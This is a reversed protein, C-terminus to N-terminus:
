ECRLAVTPDVRAAARAPVLAAVLGVLALIVAVVAFSVPDHPGVSFLLSKLIRSVALAAALGLAGGLVLLRAGDCGVLRLIDTRTAGLAMRVGIEQTRQTVMFATVGYLGIAAMLLGALAFFGLLAAEFRPQDALRSVSENMTELDVPVTPDITAIQSRVWQLTAPLSLSTKLIIVTHSNWDEGSNRRLEYLEPEGAGSLEANKVNAAVGVVTYWPEDPGPQVRQGTPNEGAFLRAALLQSLVM